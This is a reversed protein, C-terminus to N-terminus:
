AEELLAEPPGGHGSVGLLVDGGAGDAGATLCGVAGGSAKEARKGNRM